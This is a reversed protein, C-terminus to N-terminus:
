KESANSSQELSEIERQLQRQKRYLTLVYGFVVAWVIAFAAFLYSSNEM